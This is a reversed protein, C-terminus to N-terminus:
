GAGPVATGGLDTPGGSRAPVPRGLAPEAELEPPEILAPASRALETIHDLHAALSSLQETVEVRLAHLALVADDADAVRQHSEMAARNVLANSYTTAQQM